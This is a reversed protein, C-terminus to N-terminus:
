ESPNEDVLKTFSQIYEDLQESFYQRQEPMLTKGFEVLLKKVLQQNYALNAKYSDSHLAEPMRILQIIRQRKEELQLQNGLIAKLQEQWRGRFTMREAHLPKFQVPWDRLLAEQQPTVEGLWREFHEILKNGLQEYRETQSLKKFKDELEANKDTLEAFMERQQGDNFTLLVDAFDPAARYKLRQWAGTIRQLIDETNTEDLGVAVYQQIQQLDDIYIPLQSTRHWALFATIRKDVEIQQDENLSVYDDIKGALIWDLQKYTYQITCSALLGSSLLFVVVLINKHRM